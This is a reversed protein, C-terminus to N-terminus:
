NQISITKHTENEFFYAFYNRTQEKNIYKFELKNQQEMSHGMLLSFHWNITNFPEVNYAVLYVFMRGDPEIELEFLEFDVKIDNTKAGFYKFIFSEFPKWFSSKKQNKVLENLNFSQKQDEVWHEFDRSELQITCFIMKDAEEYDVRCLGVHFEHASVFTWFFLLSISTLITKSMIFIQGAFITIKADQFLTASQVLFNLM